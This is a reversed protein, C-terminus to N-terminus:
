RQKKIIENYVTLIFNDHIEQERRLEEELEEPSSIEEFEDMLIVQDHYKSAFFEEIIEEAKDTFKLKCDFPLQGHNSNIFNFCLEGPEEFWLYFILDIDLQSNDLHIKYNDKVKQIFELFDTITLQSIIYSPANIVWHNNKIEEDIQDTRDTLFIPESILRELDNFYDVKNITM